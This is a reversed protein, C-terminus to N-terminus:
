VKAAKIRKAAALGAQEGLSICTGMVRTSGLAEHTVSICRGATFLNGIGKVKICGSPIEYYDGPKLYKYITGKNPDWLEIPWSNKVIGDPFKRGSLVDEETLMYEGIIRNGERELIRTSSGAISSGRFADLKESLYRHALVADAEAKERTAIDDGGSISLKLDGEGPFEGPVLVSFRIEPSLVKEKVGKALHWPVRIRLDDDINGLGKLHVMYASMQRVQDGAMDYDAGAMVSVAGNGSCDIVYRPQYEQYAGSEDVGVASILDGSKQVSRVSASSRVELSSESSCLSSLLSGLDDRSFPLVYVKGVKEIKKEPSRLRLSSAVEEAMGNNLTAVPAADGNLYLGCIHRLMGYYGMGGLHTEQELLITRAGNRAAAVAAAVGSVGGGAVLVDVATM